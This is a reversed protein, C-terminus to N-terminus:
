RDAGRGLQGPARCARGSQASFSLAVNATIKTNQSFPLTQTSKPYQCPMGELVFQDRGVFLM